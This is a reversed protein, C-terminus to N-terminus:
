AAAVAMPSDQEEVPMVPTKIYHQRTRKASTPAALTSLDTRFYPQCRWHGYQRIGKENVQGYLKEEGEREYDAELREKMAMTINWAHEWTTCATLQDRIDTHLRLAAHFLKFLHSKIINPRTPCARCIELYEQAISWAMPPQDQVFLTPNYLHGEGSMVGVAGTMEMCRGIDEHYLINGNAIVPVRVAQQIARIKEWDALGTWHGRQERLRGHVVILQAGAAEIMQAYEVSQAITPFVRIKATVPVCLEKDLRSIMATITEWDDQLYSGYRGRKAIIQPCGLNLDVADCQHQVQTAAELLTDPDNACFQVILPRDHPDTSWQTERYRPGSYADSFLKAHFMPTYCLQANYKRSLIRWAQESQEVM